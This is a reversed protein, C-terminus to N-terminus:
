TLHEDQQYWTQLALQHVERWPINNARALEACDEYEPQVNAIAHRPPMTSIPSEALSSSWAVKVRVEGYQTKVSHMERSLIRRQQTFRRVGLTTTERFLVMECSEMAEPHCIVTLLVGPRSKKMGIAQTFVDVAGAKFLAEFVYGVAQPSLDDIQTQLVSITELDPTSSREGLPSDDLVGKGLLPPAEPSRGAVSNEHGFPQVSFSRTGAGPKPTLNKLSQSTLNQLQSAVGEVEGEGIWLRLINPIALQLSGAGVGVRQLKMGPAAGFASALTTVLAAGTPTVLERNIGNHYIPVQRSEWLKLVAPVPVPLRGHAAWVTGGGTPLASCYLHDIGLWDLGLCTGVIDVIADTAGVEHFHVQEKPIGHVAGEAEALKGFVALSWESVRPPLGANTILQEIEPLHRTSTHVSAHHKLKPTTSSPSKHEHGHTHGPEHSHDHGHTHEHGHSHQHETVEGLLDVYVKTALQGNHHISEVRLRYEQEIGLKKLEVTLYDLPVGASILAGLCMDGAIGTPCDLYVLKTMFNQCNIQSYAEHNM